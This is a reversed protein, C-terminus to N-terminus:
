KDKERKIEKGFNRRRLPVEPWIEGVLRSTLSPGVFAVLLGLLQALLVVKGEHFEAPDLRSRLAGLGDLEGQADVRVESLWPAEATALSLARALLARVGREGVLMALHPRLQEAVPFTMAVDAESTSNRETEFILLHKAISRMQPTTRNM